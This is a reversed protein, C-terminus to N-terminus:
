GRLCHPTFRLRPPHPPLLSLLCPQPLYLCPGLFSCPLSPSPLPLPPQCHLRFDPTRHGLSSLLLSVLSFSFQLCFNALSFGHIFGIHFGPINSFVPVTPRFPSLSFHLACSSFISFSVFFYISFRLVRFQLCMFVRYFPFSFFFLLFCSSYLSSRFPCVVSM